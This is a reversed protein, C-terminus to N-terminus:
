NEEKTLHKKRNKAILTLGMVLLVVSLAQSVRITGFYLSDARLGEVFMRVLGYWVMYGCFIEGDFVKKKKYLCLLLVGVANALSEYLFTPHVMNAVIKGDQEITMAWPLNCASGFAEGNVFNGWRGIAQGILLGVALIDLVKGINLKKLKCYILVAAAAGIVGGYIAIGGGRINLIDFLNNQYYDWNFIVYYIRACIIAAPVGILFMNYFDDQSIGCKKVESLAYLFGLCLGLGIILGYTYIPMGFVSFLSRSVEFELGLGPFSIVNFM